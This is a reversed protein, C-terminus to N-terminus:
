TLTRRPRSGLRGAAILLPVGMVFPGIVALGAPGGAVLNSVLMAGYAVLPLATVAAGRPAASLPRQHEWARYLAYVTFTTLLWGVYNQVPVGFYPGGREWVWARFSPGSLIPDVVVDWATMVAAGVLALWAVRRWGGRTGFPRGDALLGAIVYSPYIMMFWAGPILVPVDGLKPGLADTYHYPGFVAGTAVGAQEFVWSVVASLVFFVAAHRGGLAGVAHCLSFVVLLMTLGNLGGPTAPLHADALLGRLPGDYIFLALAVVSAWVWVRRDRPM